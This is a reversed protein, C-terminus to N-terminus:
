YPCKVPWLARGKANQVDIASQVDANCSCISGLMTSNGCGANYCGLEDTEYYCAGIALCAGIFLKTTDVPDFNSQRQVRM